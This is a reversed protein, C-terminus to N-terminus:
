IYVLLQNLGPSRSCCLHHSAAALHLHYEGTGVDLEAFDKAKLYVSCPPPRLLPLQLAPMCGQHLNCLSHLSSAQKISATSPQDM